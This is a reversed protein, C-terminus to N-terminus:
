SVGVVEVRYSDDVSKPPTSPVSGDRRHVDVDVALHRPHAKLTFSEPRSLCRVARKHFGYTGRHSTPVDPDEYVAIDARLGRACEVRFRVERKGKPLLWKSTYSSDTLVGEAAPSAAVVVPGDLTGRAFRRESSTMPPIEAPLRAPNSRPWDTASYKPPFGSDDDGPLHGIPFELRLLVGAAPTTGDDHVVLATYVKDTDCLNEDVVIWRSRVSMDYHGNPWPDEASLEPWVTIMRMNKGRLTSVFTRCQRVADGPRIGPISLDAEVSASRPDSDGCALGSCGEDEYFSSPDLRAGAPLPAQKLNETLESMSTGDACGGALVCLVLGLTLLTRAAGSFM